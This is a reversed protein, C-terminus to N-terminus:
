GGAPTAEKEAAAKGERTWWARWADASEPLGKAAEFREALRRLAAAAAARVLPDDDGLTEALAPVAALRGRRGLERAAARRLFPSPHRLHKTELTESTSHELVAELVPRTASTEVRGHVLVRRDGAAVLAAVADAEPLAVLAETARSRTAFDDSELEVLARRTTEPLVAPPAANAPPRPARCPTRPGATCAVLAVVIVGAASSRHLFRRM